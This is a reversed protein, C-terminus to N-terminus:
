AIKVHQQQPNATDGQSELLIDIQKRAVVKNPRNLQRYIGVLEEEDAPIEHNNKDFLRLKGDGPVFMQGQGTRLWNENVTIGEKLQNPMCIFTINQETVISKILEIASIQSHTLHLKNAFEEQTMELAKRVIKVRDNVTEKKEM